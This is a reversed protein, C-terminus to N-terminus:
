NFLNLFLQKLLLYMATLDRRDNGCTPNNGIFAAVDLLQTWNGGLESLNLNELDDGVRTRFEDRRMKLQRVYDRYQPKFKVGMFWDASEMAERLNPVGCGDSVAHFLYLPMWGQWPDPAHELIPLWEGQANRRYVKVMLSGLTSFLRPQGLVVLVSPGDEENCPEQGRWQSYDDVLSGTIGYTYVESADGNYEDLQIADEFHVVLDGPLIHPLSNARGIQQM